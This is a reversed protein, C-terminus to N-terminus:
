CRLECLLCWGAWGFVRDDLGTDDSSSEISTRSCYEDHSVIFTLEYSGAGRCLFAFLAAAGGRRCVGNEHEAHVTGARGGERRQQSGHTREGAVLGLQQQGM